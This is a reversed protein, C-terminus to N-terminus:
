ERHLIKFDVEKPKLYARLVADFKEASCKTGCTFLDVFCSDYEPYTHISAHSESLLCVMTLGDGPFYYDVSNLLQAGCANSAEKMKEALRKVDTLAKHDCQSYSVILHRGVFQYESPTAPETAYGQFALMSLVLFFLILCQKNINQFWIM